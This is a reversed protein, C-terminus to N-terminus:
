GSLDADPSPGSPAGPPGAHRALDAVVMETIMETFGTTPSWGLVEAARSADGVREVPEAPRVFRPDVRVYREWDDLEAAGFAAAVLERVSHTRGTAVVFDGPEDRQVMKWMAEVYDAAHGWDRRADLDGLVLEDALGLAIRAVGDTVKRTVFEIRRRPSEHNFLIGCSAHMGYSARYGLTVDHAFAKAAGYPSRPRRPTGEDQPSEDVDGFMDSSSAQFFRVPRGTRDSLSRCAELLRLAGLGTVEATLEAQEFSRQVFSTSALNYVEDPRAAEVAAHLSAGDALDGVILEVPGAAMEAVGPAHGGQSRVLGVVRYSRGLLLEALLSGDQGTIGTILATRM